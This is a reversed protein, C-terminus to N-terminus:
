VWFKIPQSCRHIKFKHSNARYHHCNSLSFGEPLSLHSLHELLLSWSKILSHHKIQQLPNYNQTSQQQNSHHRLTGWRAESQRLSSSLSRYTLNPSWKPTGQFITSTLQANSWRFPQNSIGNTSPALGNWRQNSRTESSWWSGTQSHCIAWKLFGPRLRTIRILQIRCAGAWYKVLVVEQQLRNIITNMQDTTKHSLLVVQQRLCVLLIALQPMPRRIPWPTSSSLSLIMDACSM